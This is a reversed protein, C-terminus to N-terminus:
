PKPADRFKGSEEADQKPTSVAPPAERKSDRTITEAIESLLERALADDRGADVWVQEGSRGTESPSFPESQPRGSAGEEYGGTRAAAVAQETAERQLRVEALGVVDSGSATM